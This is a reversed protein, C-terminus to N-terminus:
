HPHSAPRAGLPFGAPRRRTHYIWARLLVFRAVTAVLNAAGLVALEVPRGAGPAVAQLAALSATTIGLAVGFAM